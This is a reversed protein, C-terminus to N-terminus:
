RGGASAAQDVSVGVTVKGGVKKALPAGTLHLMACHEHGNLNESNGDQSLGSLVLMDNKAFDLPRLISPLKTLPGAEKPRWSELVTGGTVTFIGMRLPPTAAKGAALATLPAVGELFPLALLAGAGRLLARRTLRISKPNM